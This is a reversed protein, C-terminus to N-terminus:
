NDSMIESHQTNEETIEPCYNESMCGLQLRYEDDYQNKSLMTSCFTNDCSITQNVCQDNFLTNINRFKDVAFDCQYCQKSNAIFSDSTPIETTQNYYNSATTTQNNYAPKLIQSGSIMSVIYPIILLLKM